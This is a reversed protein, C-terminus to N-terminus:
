NTGEPASQENTAFPDVIVETLPADRFNIKRKKQKEDVLQAAPLFTCTSLDKPRSFNHEPLASAISKVSWASIEIASKLDNAMVTVKRKGNSDNQRVVLLVDTGEERCQMTAASDLLSNLRKQQLQNAIKRNKQQTVIFPGGPSKPSASFQDAPTPSVLRSTNTTRNEKSCRRADLPHNENLQNYSVLMSELDKSDPKANELYAIIQPSAHQDVDGQLFHVKAVLIARAVVEEATGSSGFGVAELYSEAVKKTFKKLAPVEHPKKRDAASPNQARQLLVDHSGTTKLNKSQLYNKLQTMSPAKNVPSLPARILWNNVLEIDTKATAEKKKKAHPDVSLAKSGIFGEALIKSKTKAKPFARAIDILEELERPPLMQAHSKLPEPIIGRTIRGTVIESNESVNPSLIILALIVARDTMVQANGVIAVGCAQLFPKCVNGNLKIKKKPQSTPNSSFSANEGGAANLAGGTVINVNDPANQPPNEEPNQPSLPQVTSSIGVDCGVSEQPPFM